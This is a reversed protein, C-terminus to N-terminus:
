SQPVTRNRSAKRGHASGHFNVMEDRVTMVCKAYGPNLELLEIGLSRAFLDQEIRERIEQAVNVTM